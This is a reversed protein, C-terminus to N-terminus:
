QLQGNKEKLYEIHSVVDDYNEADLIWITSPSIKVLADNLTTFSTYECLFKKTSKDYAFLRGDVIDTTVVRSREKVTKVIQEKMAREKKIRRLELAIAWLFVAAAGVFFGFLFEIM